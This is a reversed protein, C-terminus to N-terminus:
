QSWVWYGHQPGCTALRNLLGQLFLDDLFASDHLRSLQKKCVASLIGSPFEHSFNTELACWLSLFTLALICSVLHNQDFSIAPFESSSVSAFSFAQSISDEVPTPRHKKPPVSFMRARVHRNSRAAEVLNSSRDPEDGNRM